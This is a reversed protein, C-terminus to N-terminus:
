IQLALIEKESQSGERYAQNFQNARFNEFGAINQLLEVISHNFISVSQSTLMSCVGMRIPLALQM